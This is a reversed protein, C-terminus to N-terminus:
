RVESMGVINDFNFVAVVKSGNKFILSDETKEWKDATIIVHKCDSLYIIYSNM